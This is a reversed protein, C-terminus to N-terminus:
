KFDFGFGLFGVEWCFGLFSLVLFNFFGVRMNWFIRDWYFVLGDFGLM